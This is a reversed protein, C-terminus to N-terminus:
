FSAAISRSRPTWILAQVGVSSSCFASRDTVFWKAHFDDCRGVFWWTLMIYFIMEQYSIFLATTQLFEPWELLGVLRHHQGNEYGAPNCGLSLETYQSDVFCSSNESNGLSEVSHVRLEQSWCLDLWKMEVVRDDVGVRYKVQKQTSCDVSKSISVSCDVM